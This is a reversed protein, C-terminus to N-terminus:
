IGNPVSVNNNAYNELNQTPAALVICNVFEIVQVDGTRGWQVPNYTVQLNITYASQQPSTTASYLADTPFFVPKPVVSSAIDYGDLKALIM